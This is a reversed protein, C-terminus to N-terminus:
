KYKFIALKKKMKEVDTLDVPSSFNLEEEGIIEPAPYNDSFKQVDAPTSKASRKRHNKKDNFEQSSINPQIM